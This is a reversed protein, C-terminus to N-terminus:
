ISIELHGTHLHTHQHHSLTHPTHPHKFTHNTHTFHQSHFTNRTPHTHSPMHPHIFHTLTHTLTNLHTFIHSLTLHPTHPTHPCPYTITNLLTPPSYPQSPTKHTCCNISYDTRQRVDQRTEAVTNRHGTYRSAHHGCPLTTNHM